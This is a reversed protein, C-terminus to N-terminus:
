FSVTMGMLIGRGPMNHGSGHIRYDEDTVNQVGLNLDVDDSVRWGSNLHLVFYSPTGGPPVRSTDRVDSTSLKDADDAYIGLVEVWQRSNESDWRLGLQATLPMLRTLYDEQLVQASTPYTEVKGYMYTLNGFLTWQPIAEWAGGTEVGYVFGDGVNGKTVEYSEDVGDGDLDRMEGTPYRVIQDKIQTYFVALQASHREASQKVGLEYSISHEADLGPAPIEFEDTRASDFRTLDSLNPARFGQSIGGFISTTDEELAYSFRASGVWASWDESLAIQQDPAGPDPNLVSNADAAAYNFRGGLIFDLRDTAEIEDQVYVGVLDYTADDAVPGQIAQGTKFSSVEDHYVDFGYTLRGIGTESGLNALLGFTDVEFGQEEQSGSGKTRHRIESQQHWSLSLDYSDFFSDAEEGQLKTYALTREQDFDRRLDSGVSSGEFPVAYVTKHTRPVDNQYVHQFGFVLRTYPDLYKEMKLDGDIESYGTYPQTGTDRGGKLDGLDKATIGALIGFDGEFMGSVEARGYNSNEASSYRYRLQGGVANGNRGPYPNMTNVNVTGGIADSGYLVSSPGKIVDMSSISWADVTAWYQNPGPRFVSNNLRIGDILFLNRFSTFGRIYPSGHGPATEQIMVGPVDRLIQPTTRYSREKIREDTVVEVSYPAELVTRPTRTATIIVEDLVILDSQGQEEEKEQREEERKPPEDEQPPASESGPGPSRAGALLASLLIWATARLTSPHPLAPSFGFRRM